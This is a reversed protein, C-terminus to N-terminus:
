EEETVAETEVSLFDSVVNLASLPMVVKNYGLLDRINLYNARLAKVDSLNHASREVNENRDALLLLASEGNTIRGM